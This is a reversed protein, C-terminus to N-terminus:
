IKTRATLISNLGNAEFQQCILSETTVFRMKESREGEKKLRKNVEMAYDKTEKKEGRMEEQYERERAGTSVLERVGHFVSASEGGVHVFM